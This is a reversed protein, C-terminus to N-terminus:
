KEFLLSLYMPEPVESWIIISDILVLSKNCIKMYLPYNIIAEMIMIAVPISNRFYVSRSVYM